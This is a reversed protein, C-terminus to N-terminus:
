MVMVESWPSSKPSPPKKPWPGMMCLFTKSTGKTSPLSRHAKVERGYERVDPRPGPKREDPREEAQEGSKQQARGGDQQPREAHRDAGDGALPSVPVGLYLLEDEQPKVAQVRREGLAVHRLALQGVEAAQAALAAEVAQAGGERRERRYGPGGEGGADVGRAVGHEVEEVAVQSGVHRFEGGGAHVLGLAHEFDAPVADREAPGDDLHATLAAGEPVDEAFM